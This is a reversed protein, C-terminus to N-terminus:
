RVRARCCRRRSRACRMTTRIAPESCRHSASFSTASSRRTRSRSANTARCISSRISCREVSTRSSACTRRSSIRRGCPTRQGSTSRAPRSHITTFPSREATSRSRASCSASISVIPVASWMSRAMSDSTRRTRECRWRGALSSTRRRRGCGCTTASRYRCAPCRCIGFRRRCMEGSSDSSREAFRSWIPTSSPASTLISRRISASRMRRRSSRSTSRQASSIPM